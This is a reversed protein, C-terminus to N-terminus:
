PQEPGPEGVTREHAQLWKRWEAERDSLYRPQTLSVGEVKSAITDFGGCFATKLAAVIMEFQQRDKM